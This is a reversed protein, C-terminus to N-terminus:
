SVTELTSRLLATLSSLQSVSLCGLHLACESFKTYISRGVRGAARPAHATDIGNGCLFMPSWLQASRELSRAGEKHRLTPSRPPQLQMHHLGGAMSSPSGSAMRGGDGGTDGPFQASEHFQHGKRHRGAEYPRLAQHTPGRPLTGLDLTSNCNPSQFRENSVLLALQAFDHVSLSPVSRHAPSQFGMPTSVWTGWGPHASGPAGVWTGQGLHPELSAMLTHSAPTKQQLSNSIPSREQDLSLDTLIDQTDKEAPSVSRAHPWPPTPTRERTGESTKEANRKCRPSHCVPGGPALCHPAVWGCGPHHAPPPPKPASLVAQRSGTPDQLPQRRNARQPKDPEGLTNRIRSRTRQDCLDSVHVKGHESTTAAAPIPRLPPQPRSSSLGAAGLGRSDTCQPSPAPDQAGSPRVTCISDNGSDPHFCRKSSIDASSMKYTDAKRLSEPKNLHRTSTTHAGYPQPDDTEQPAPAPPRALPPKPISDKGRMRNLPGM